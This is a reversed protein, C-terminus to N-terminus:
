EGADQTSTEVLPAMCSLEWPRVFDKLGTLKLEMSM